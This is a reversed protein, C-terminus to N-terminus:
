FEQSTQKADKSQEPNKFQYTGVIGLHTTSVSSITEFSICKFHNSYFIHDFPYDFLSFYGHPSTPMVGRRSDNLHSNERFAQIDRSWSVMNYNGFVLLPANIRTLGETFLQLNKKIQDYSEENEAPYFYPNFFYFERFGAEEDPLQIKGAIGPTYPFIVERVLEFSYRSYVASALQSATDEVCQFYPYGCCTFFNSVGDLLSIPIEQVSILDAQSNLMAVLEYDDPHSSSSLFSFQAIKVLSNSTQEANKLPAETRAELVLCLLASSAFSVMTLRIRNIFFLMLGMGLYAFMIVLCHEEWWRFFTGQAPFVCILVGLTMATAIFFEYILRYNSKTFM